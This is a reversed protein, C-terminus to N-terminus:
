GEGRILRIQHGASERHWQLPPQNGDQGGIDAKALIARSM